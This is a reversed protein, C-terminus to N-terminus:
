LKLEHELQTVKAGVSSLQAGISKAKNIVMM